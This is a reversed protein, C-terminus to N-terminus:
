PKERSITSLPPTALRIETGPGAQLLRAASARAAAIELFGQSNILCLVQGPRAQDYATALGQVRTEGVTVVLETPGKGSRTLLEEMLSASINSVLNGFRDQHTIRAQITEKDWDCAPAPLTRSVLEKRTLSRGANGASLTGRALAAAVPAFIDRGHFTSSLPQLFLEECELAHASFFIERAFLPSLLGNNPALFYQDAASVLIIERDSGVGPDVVALHITGAPFYPWAAALITGARDVDQPPVGHSLDVLRARPARALIVGKMVGVYEDDTGFDTTLTIIPDM